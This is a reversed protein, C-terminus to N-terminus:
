ARKLHQAHFELHQDILSAIFYYSHDYGEHLRFTAPYQQAQAVAKLNNTKLQEEYFNDALGQDILM